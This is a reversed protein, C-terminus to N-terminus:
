SDLARTTGWPSGLGVWLGLSSGTASHSSVCPGSTRPSTPASIYRAPLAVASNTGPGPNTSLSGSGLGLTWPFPWSPFSGTGVPGPQPHVLGCSDCVRSAGRAMLARPTVRSAFCSSPPRATPLHFPPLISRTPPALWSQSSPLSQYDQSLFLLFSSRLDHHSM